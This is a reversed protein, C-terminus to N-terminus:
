NLAIWHNDLRVGQLAMTVANGTPDRRLANLRGGVLLSAPLEPTQKAGTIEFKLKSTEADSALACAGDLPLFGVWQGNTRWLAVGRARPCSVAFGGAFAAIDGGYGALPQGVGAETGTTWPQLKQGDFVALVPAAAKVAPDDHEAQLAIGLLRPGAASATGWAIHRISLRPDALRWQGRVEGSRTDLRVLSPDMQPLQTKARGTEPRVPIGGNAVILSGGADLLLEHPDMGATPWEGTKELTAADRLGILGAGNELNTETTYLTRGDASRLVHGNLARGPEVWSWALATGDPRWRLLWDGPRRAVALVTGDPEQLLGHARNPLDIAASISLASAGAAPAPMGVELVGVQYGAASEWAAALRTTATSQRTSAARASPQSALVAVGSAALALWQRRQLKHSLNM